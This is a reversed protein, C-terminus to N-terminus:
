QAAARVPIWYDGRINKCTIDPPRRPAGPKTLDYSVWIPDLPDNPADRRIVVWEPANALDEQLTKPNNVLDPLIISFGNAYFWQWREATSNGPFVLIGTKIENSCQGLDPRLYYKYRSVTFVRAGRPASQGIATMPRCWVWARECPAATGLMTKFAKPADFYFSMSFRATLWLSIFAFAIVAIGLYRPRFSRDTVHEAGRAALPMCLLLAPLFYRPVVKDGYMIPWAAIMVFAAVTIATLPSLALRQPRQMFFALPLFGLVLPSLQGYQAFYEGFTLIFPYFIRIRAVTEPGYWQDNTFWEDPMNLPAFPMGLLVGNKVFHPALAAAISLSYICGSVLTPGVVTRFFPARARVAAAAQGFATWSFLVLSLIALCFGLILKCTVAFGVLLGGLVLDRRALPAGTRSPVLLAVGAFGLSSAFLDIKGEGIWSLVTTSSFMMTLAFIKGRLGLGARDCVGVLVMAAALNAAWTFVQAAEQNALQMLAAYTMEGLLGYYENNVSFWDRELTGSATVFKGLMMHLALSDGSMIRGFSTFGFAIWLAVGLALLRIAVNEERLRAVLTAAGQRLEAFHRVIWVLAFIALPFVVVSVYVPQMVGAVAFLTWLQGLAGLGFLFAISLSFYAPQGALASRGPGAHVAILGCGLCALSYLILGPFFTASWGALHALMNLVTM